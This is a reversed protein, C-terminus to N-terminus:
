CSDVDEVFEAGVAWVDEGLDVDHDVTANTGAGVYHLEEGEASLCHAEPTREQIGISRMAFFANRPGNFTLNM